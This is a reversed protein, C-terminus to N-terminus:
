NGWWGEIEYRGIRPSFIFGILRGSKRAPPGTYAAWGDRKFVRGM